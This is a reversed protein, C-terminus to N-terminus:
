PYLILKRSPKAKAELSLTSVLTKALRTAIEDNLRSQKTAVRRAFVLFKSQKILLIAM